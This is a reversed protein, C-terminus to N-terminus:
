CTSIALSVYCPDHIPPGFGPPGSISSCFRLTPAPCTSRAPGMSPPLVAGSCPHSCRRRCIWAFARSTNPNARTRTAGLCSWWHPPKM